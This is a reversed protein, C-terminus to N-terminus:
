LVTLQKTILLTNFAYMLADVDPLKPATCGLLEGPSLPKSRPIFIEYRGPYHDNPLSSQTSGDMSLDEKLKHLAAAFQITSVLAFRTPTQYAAAKSVQFSNLSGDPSDSDDSPGTISIRQLPGIPTGAPLSALSQESM